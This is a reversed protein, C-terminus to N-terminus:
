HRWTLGLAYVRGATWRERVVDGQTFQYPADFLNKADFRLGVNSLVPLRLSLDLVNRAEEYVDPLPNEGADQIRRGVRNFLITASAGSRQGTYTLGTNVVYPAQGVMPRNARTISAQTENLEIRSHMLTVNSFVALPELVAAFSGLEKRVELEAGYNTAGQANQFTVIRTGSTGLYVREIPDQFRKTFLSVSLIEASTPYFEWRIDYNQVLTRVLDSNGLVNDFGIVERYLIPALERYEPRSLTQSAAFRLNQNDTMRVTVALSPLVDTFWPTTTLSGGVTPEAIVRVDSQEVRAGAIVSWRTSVAYDAM